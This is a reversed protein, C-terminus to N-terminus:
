CGLFAVRVVWSIIAGDIIVAGARALRQAQCSGFLARSRGGGVFSAGEVIRIGLVAGTGAYASCCLSATGPPSPIFVFARAYLFLYPM